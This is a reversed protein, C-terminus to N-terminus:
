QELRETHGADYGLAHAPPVRGAPVRGELSASSSPGTHLPPPHQPHATRQVLEELEVLPDVRGAGRAPLLIRLEFPDQEVRVAGEDPIALDLGEGHAVPRPQRSAAEGHDVVPIELAPVLGEAMQGAELRQGAALLRGQEQHVGGGIPQLAPSHLRDASSLRPM